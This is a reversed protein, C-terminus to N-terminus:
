AAEDEAEGDEEQEGAPEREEGGGPRDHPRAGRLVSAQFRSDIRAPLDM